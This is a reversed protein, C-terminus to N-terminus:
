GYLGSRVLFYVAGTVCPGFLALLSAISWRSAPLSGTWCFLALIELLAALVGGGVSIRLGDDLQSRHMRYGREYLPLHATRGDRQATAALRQHHFAQRLPQAAMNTSTVLVVPVLVLLLPAAWSAPWSAKPLMWLPHLWPIPSLVVILPGIFHFCSWGDPWAMGAFTFSWAM